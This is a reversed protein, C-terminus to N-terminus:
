VPKDFLLPFLFCVRIIQDFFHLEKTRIWFTEIHQVLLKCAPYISRRRQHQLASFLSSLGIHTKFLYLCQQFFPLLGVGLHFFVAAAANVKFVPSNGIMDPFELVLGPPSLGIHSVAAVAFIEVPIIFGLDYLNNIFPFLGPFGSFWSIPKGPKRKLAIAIKQDELYSLRRHYM